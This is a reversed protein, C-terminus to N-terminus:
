PCTQRDHLRGKTPASNRITPEIPDVRHRNGARTDDLHHDAPRRSHPLLRRRRTDGGSGAGQSGVGFGDDAHRGSRPGASAMRDHRRRHDRHVTTACRPQQRATAAVAPSAAVLERAQARPKEEATIQTAGSVQEGCRREHRTPRQSARAALPYGDRATVLALRIRSVPMQAGPRRHEHFKRQEPRTPPLWGSGDSPALVVYCISSPVAATGRRDPRPRSPARNGRRRDGPRQCGSGRGCGATAGIRGNHISVLVGVTATPQRARSGRGCSTQGSDRRSGNARRSLGPGRRLIGSISAHDRRQRRVVRSDAAELDRRDQESLVAGLPPDGVM